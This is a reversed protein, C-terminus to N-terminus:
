PLIIFSFQSLCIYKTHQTNKNDSVHLKEVLVSNDTLALSEHMQPLTIMNFHKVLKVGRRM